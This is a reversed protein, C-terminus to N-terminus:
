ELLLGIIRGPQWSFRLAKLGSQELLCRLDALAAWLVFSGCFASSNSPLMFSEMRYLVRMYRPQIGLLFLLRDQLRFPQHAAETGEKFRLQFFLSPNTEPLLIVPGALVPSMGDQGMQGHKRKREKWFECLRSELSDLLCCCIPSISFFNKIKLSFYM